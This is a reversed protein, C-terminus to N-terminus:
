CIDAGHSAPCICLDSLEQPKFRHNWQNEQKWLKMTFLYM